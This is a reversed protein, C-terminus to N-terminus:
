GDLLGETISTDTIEDDLPEDVDILKDSSEGIWQSLLSLMTGIAHKL